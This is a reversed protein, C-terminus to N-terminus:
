KEEKKQSYNLLNPKIGPATSQAKCAATVTVPFHAAFYM